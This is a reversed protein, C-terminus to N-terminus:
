PGTPSPGGGSSEEGQPGASAGAQFAALLAERLSWVAVEHIDLADSGRTELITIGLVRKAIETIVEAETPTSM